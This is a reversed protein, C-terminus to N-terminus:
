KMQGETWAFLNTTKNYPFAVMEGRKWLMVRQM